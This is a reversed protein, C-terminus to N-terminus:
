LLPNILDVFTEEKVLGSKRWKIEGKQFLIYTPVGKVNFKNSLAKNNDLNIKLIKLNDGFKKKLSKLIPHMKKCPNCWDANFDVM